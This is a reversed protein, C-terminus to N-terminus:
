ENTFFDGITEEAKRKERRKRNREERRRSEEDRLRTDNESHWQAVFRSFYQGRDEQAKLFDTVALEDFECYGDDFGDSPSYNPNRADRLIALVAGGTIVKNHTSAKRAKVNEARKLAAVKEKQAALQAELKELKAAESDLKSM